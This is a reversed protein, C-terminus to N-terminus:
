ASAGGARDVLYWILLVLVPLAVVALSWFFRKFILRLALGGLLSGFLLLDFWFSPDSATFSRRFGKGFFSLLGISLDILLLLWFLLNM